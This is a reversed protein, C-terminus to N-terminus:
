GMFLRATKPWKVYVNIAKKEIKDIVAGSLALRSPTQLIEHFEEIKLAPIGIKSM